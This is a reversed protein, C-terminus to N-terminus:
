QCQTNQGRQAHDPGELLPLFEIHQIQEKSHQNTEHKTPDAHQDQGNKEPPDVGTQFLRLLFAERASRYGRAHHEHHGKRQHSEHSRVEQVPLRCPRNTEAAMEVTATAVPASIELSYSFGLSHFLMTGETIAVAQEITQSNASRVFVTWVQWADDTEVAQHGRKHIQTLSELMAQM